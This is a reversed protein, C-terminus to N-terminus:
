GFKIGTLALFEEYGNLFTETTEIYRSHTNKSTDEWQLFGNPELNSTHHFQDSATQVPFGSILRLFISFLTKANEILQHPDNDRIVCAWLRVHVIDYQGVMHAPLSGRNALADFIHFSM